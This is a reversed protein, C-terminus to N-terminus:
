NKKIYLWAGIGVAAAVVGFLVTNSMSYGCCSSSSTSAKETQAKKAKVFEGAFWEIIFKDSLNVKTNKKSEIIAIINDQLKDVQEQTMSQALNEIVAVSQTDQVTKSITALDEQKIGTKSSPFNIGEVIKAFEGGRKKWFKKWFPLAADSHTADIMTKQMVGYLTLWEEQTEQDFENAPLIQKLTKIINAGVVPYYADKTGYLVHRIGLRQLADVAKPMDGLLSLATTIFKPLNMKQEAMTANKFDQEKLFPFDTFLTNYFIPGFSKSDDKAEIELVRAWSKQVKPFPLDSTAPM